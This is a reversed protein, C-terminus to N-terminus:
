CGTVLITGVRVRDPMTALEATTWPRTRFPLGEIGFSLGCHAPSVIFQGEGFALAAGPLAALRRVPTGVHLSDSTTLGPSTVRIRWIRGEVVEAVITDGGLAIRMAPQPEGELMLTTDGVVPCRRRVDEADDRIAIGGVAAGTLMPEKGSTCPLEEGEANATAARGEARPPADACAALALLALTSLLRLGTSM